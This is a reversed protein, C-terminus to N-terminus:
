EAKKAIEWGQSEPQSMETAKQEPLRAVAARALRKQDAARTYREVEKLTKHGTVAAIENASCGAEALRRAAAKRLGHLVCCEPLGAERIADSMGNGYGAATFSKGHATTLISVHKRPWQDLLGQLDPHIPIWLKEGTKIQTVRIANEDIDPWGMRCVDSRRQGTYLHLAFAMRERTGVSWRAEFKGIEEDTWTHFETGRFRKIHLTPDDTRWGSDIAFRILIKIKKLLDTAAGPTEAKTAIIKKVHERRMERVLRHGHEAAFRELVLRYARRSSQKLRLFDPSAFYDAILRDITGSAGRQKKEPSASVQDSIAAQYATMFEASGPLGPLPIRPGGRRRFYYRQHGHRDRFRDVFRLHIRTM